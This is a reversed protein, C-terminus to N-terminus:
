GFQNTPNTLVKKRLMQRSYSMAMLVQQSTILRIVGLNLPELGFISFCAKLTLRFLSRRLYHQQKMPQFVVLGVGRQGLVHAPLEVEM